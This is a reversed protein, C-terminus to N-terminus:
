QRLFRVQEEAPVERGNSDIVRKAQEVGNTDYSHYIQVIEGSAGIRQENSVRGDSGYTFVDKYKLRGGNEFVQVSEPLGM